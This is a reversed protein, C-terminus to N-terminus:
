PFSNISAFVNRSILNIRIPKPLFILCRKVWVLVSEIEEQNLVKTQKMWKEKMWHVNPQSIIKWDRHRQKIKFWWFLLSRIYSRVFTQIGHSRNFPTLTLAVMHISCITILKHHVNFCIFPKIFWILHQVHSHVPSSQIPTFQFSIFQFLSLALSISVSVSISTVISLPNHVKESSFLFLCVVQGFASQHTLHGFISHYTWTTHIKNINSQPRIFLWINYEWSTFKLPQSSTTEMSKTKNMVERMESFMMRALTFVCLCVCVDHFHVNWWNATRLLMTYVCSLHGIRPFFIVNIWTSHKWSLGHPLYEFQLLCHTSHLYTAIARHMPIKTATSINAKWCDFLCLANTKLRKDSKRECNKKNKNAWHCCWLCMFHSCIIFNITAAKRWFATLKIVM